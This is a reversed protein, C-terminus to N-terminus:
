GPGVYVAIEPSTIKFKGNGRPNNFDVRSLSMETVSSPIEVDERPLM